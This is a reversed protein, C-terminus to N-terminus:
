IVDSWDEVLFGGAPDIHIYYLEDFGEDFTPLQLRSFTGRIGRDPIRSQGPRNANRRMAEQLKSQFYHGVVRFDAQKAPAIYRRRVEREGIGDGGVPVSRRGHPVHPGPPIGPLLVKGVGPSRRRTLGRSPLRPM